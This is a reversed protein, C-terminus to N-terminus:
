ISRGSARGIARRGAARSIWWNAVRAKVRRGTDWSQAWLAPLRWRWRFLEIRASHEDRYDRQQDYDAAHQADHEIVIVLCGDVIAVGRSGGQDLGLDGDCDLGVGSSGDISLSGHGIVLGM